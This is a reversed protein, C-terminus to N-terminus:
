VFYSFSLAIHVTSATPWDTIPSNVYSQGSGCKVIYLEATAAMQAGLSTFGASTFGQYAGLAGFQSGLGIISAPLGTIKIIGSATTHTVVGVIYIVVTVQRGIKTYRGVQSSYSVALNGPTACTFVPTFTGEEYDDLTNPNASPVQTAPFNIQGNSLRLSSFDGFPKLPTPAIAIPAVPPTFNGTRLAVGKLIVFDDIYDGETNATGYNWGGVLLPALSQSTLMTVIAGAGLTASGVSVGDVYITLVNNACNASIHHWNTTDNPYPYAVNIAAVNNGSSFVITNTTSIALYWAATLSGPVGKSCIFSWKTALHSTKFKHWCEITWTEALRLSDADDDISLYNGAGSYDLCATGFKPATTSTTAAGVVNVAHHENSIDTFVIGANAGEMDLHLARSEIAMLDTRLVVKAGAAWALAEETADACEAILGSDLYTYLSQSLHGVLASGAVGALDGSTIGQYVRWKSATDTAFAATSTHPVVCVYWIGAVSVIDKVVYATATVWAGRNTIGAVAYIASTLTRKVNGLRDTSTDALSTAIDAIHDVDTKANNLDTISIATM